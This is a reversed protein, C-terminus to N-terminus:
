KGECLLRKRKRRWRRGRTGFTVSFTFISITSLSLFGPSRLIGETSERSKASVILFNRLTFIHFLRFFRGHHKVVILLFKCFKEEKPNWESGWGGEGKGWCGGAPPIAFGSVSLLLAEGNAPQLEVPSIILRKMRLFVAGRIRFFSNLRPLLGGEEGIPQAWRLVPQRRRVARSKCGIFWHRLKREKISNGLGRSFFSESSTVIFGVM